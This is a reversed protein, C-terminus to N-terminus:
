QAMQKTERIGTSPHMFLIITVGNGVVALLQQSSPTSDKSNGRGYTCIHPCFQFTSTIQTLSNM